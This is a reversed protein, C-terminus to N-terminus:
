KTKQDLPAKQKVPKNGTMKKRPTTHRQVAVPAEADSVPNKRKATAVSSPKNTRRKTEEEETFACEGGTKSAEDEAGGEAARRVQSNRPNDERGTHRLWPARGARLGFCGTRRAQVGADVAGAWVESGRAAAASRGRERLVPNPSIASRRRSSWWCGGGLVAPPREAVAADFLLCAASSCSHAPEALLPYFLTLAHFVWAPLSCGNWGPRFDYVLLYPLRGPDARASGL